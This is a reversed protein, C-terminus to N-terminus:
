SWLIYIIEPGMCNFQFVTINGDSHHFLDRLDTSGSSSVMFQINEKQEHKIEKGSKWIGTFM